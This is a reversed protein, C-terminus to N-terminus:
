FTIAKHKPLTLYNSLSLPLHAFVPGRSFYIQSLFENLPTNTCRPGERVDRRSAHDQVLLAPDSLRTGKTSSIGILYRSLLPHDPQLQFSIWLFAPLCASSLSFEVPHWPHRSKTVPSGTILYRPSPEDRPM